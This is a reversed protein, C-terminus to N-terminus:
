LFIVVRLVRLSFVSYYVSTYTIPTMNGDDVLMSKRNHDHKFDYVMHVRIFRYGHPPSM